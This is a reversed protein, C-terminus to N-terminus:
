RYGFVLIKKKKLDSGKKKKFKRFYLFIQFQSKKKKKIITIGRNHSALILIWYTQLTNSAM